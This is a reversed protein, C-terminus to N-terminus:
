SRSNKWVDFDSPLCHSSKLERACTFGFDQKGGLAFYPCILVVYTPVKTTSISTCYYTTIIYRVDSLKACNWFSKEMGTKYGTRAGAAYSMCKRETFGRVM